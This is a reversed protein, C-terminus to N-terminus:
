EQKAPRRVACVSFEPKSKFGVGIAGDRLYLTWAYRPEYASTTSSWYGAQVSHFPHGRSLAPSHNELDVLSELERINPLRWDSFGAMGRRNAERVARLAESWEVPGRAIDLHQLWMLGTLRDRVVSGDRAFRPNPSRGCFAPAIVPWVMYSGHKMGRYVRGGGLHLYWAEDPLRACSDGTWYYVPSVDTFPHGHPLAPNVAQHSILSFLERRTPLRWGTYGFAKEASLKRTLLMAAEFDCLGDPICGTQTWTLGTWNDIVIGSLAQFRNPGSSSTRQEADQGSGACPVKEGSGDYCEGQDTDLLLRYM